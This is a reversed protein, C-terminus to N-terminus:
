GRAAEGSARAAAVEEFSRGDAHQPQLGTAQTLRRLAVDVYLPDLEIAAGRRRTRHAALLTTGSGSFPDLILDGHNSCDLIADAVLAVPKVTPHDALDQARGKRFTNAGAVEWVNTRYRGKEGLGFNNIHKGTGSKFVSVLEHRSRYFTGMGANNKVWVVLQKFETYVGDGADFVERLHRWDMCHYHISGAVSFRACLRFVVRLFGTFEAPSMEGAAELFERHQVAGLGSVHGAIPVNYPPDSFVMTAREDVLLAEYSAADRSNGCYLRHEGILWLDGTRSVAVADAMPLEVPPEPEDTTVGLDLDGLSFGTVDLDYDQEFLFTLEGKLAEDDWDSLEALRNDALAFARRDAESVFRVRIVPVLELGRLLAAQRRGVGAAIVGQDDIIIPVIFGVRDIARAIQEIQKGSHKRAHTSAVQLTAPDVMEIRPHNLGHM